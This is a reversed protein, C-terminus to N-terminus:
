LCTRVLWEDYDYADRAPDPVTAPKEEVMDTLHIREPLKGFRERRAVEVVDPAKEEYPMEGEEMRRPGGPVARVVAVEVAVSLSGRTEKGPEDAAQQDSTTM